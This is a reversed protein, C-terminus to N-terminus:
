AGGSVQRCLVSWMKMSQSVLITKIGESNSMQRRRYMILSASQSLCQLRERENMVHRRYKEPIYLQHCDPCRCNHVLCLGIFVHLVAAAPPQRNSWVGAHLIGCKNHRSHSFASMLCCTWSLNVFALLSNGPLVTEHPQLHWIRPKYRNRPSRQCLHFRGQM